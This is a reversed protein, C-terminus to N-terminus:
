SRSDSPTYSFQQPADRKGEVKNGSPQGIRLGTALVFSPSNVDTLNGNRPVFRRENLSRRIAALANPDHKAITEALRIAEEVDTGENVVKTVLGLRLAEEAEIVKGTYILEAARWRGVTRALYSMGFAPPLGSQIQNQAFRATTDAVILDCWMAIEWGGGLAWGHVAAILPKSCHDLIYWMSWNREEDIDMM